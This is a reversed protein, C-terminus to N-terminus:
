MQTLTGTQICKKQKQFYLTSPKTNQWVNICVNEDGTHIHSDCNQINDMM